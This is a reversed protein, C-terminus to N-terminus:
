LIASRIPPAFAKPGMTCPKFRGAKSMERPQLTSSMTLTTAILASIPVVYIGVATPQPFWVEGQCLRPLDPHQSGVNNTSGNYTPVRPSTGSTGDHFRPMFLYLTYHQFHSSELPNQLPTPEDRGCYAGTRRQQGTSLIPCYNLNKTPSKCQLNKEGV